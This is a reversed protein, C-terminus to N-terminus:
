NVIAIKCVTGKEGKSTATAVMYVGSAVRRGKKDCGDWVYSGGNSRGEHVIAGNQSLIKIDANLSLGTITIPGTYGPEVPNPYAWVNDSTMETNPETADSVYSCLGNETGFFVEGTTHNIAISSVTNSLLPSNNTTFHQIQTMNDASILYVGNGNTGFWKRNAGDIAISMIDIGNLLYDAYNTGDNRPVKVQVFTNENNDIATRELVIPGSNTGVWMNHELDEVVCRVGVQVTLSTGDQNVFSEYAIIKDNEMDYQYLAPTVWNNNVFWMKGKSDIMIKSLEANSRNPIRSNTNLKMLEPHNLKTFTGNAYKVLATTPASSNLFWLIGDQSFKTGTVIQYEKNNGDFPEIPSNSNDYYKEFKGNRFEYLGNRSGTIIHNDDSPDIDFCFAGRYSVGTIESIGENQYIEWQNDKIIQIGSSHNFEGNCTYLKGKHFRMFGFINYNPGGPKLTKVLDINNDYDSTDQNFSPYSTTQSWNSKDILNINLSATYVANNAQAYIYDGSITVAKVPFGLMYSESIEANKINVKVIGFGCALFAYQNYIYVNYITKDGTIAKTYIDSINIVNGDTDILDINTNSYVILLRKAQQCWRIHSIYTDNLGNVKDYTTISQDKKNYKYLGNSAMVFLEDGAAQIQQVDYYALYNRWTGIQAISLQCNVISLLLAIIVKKM